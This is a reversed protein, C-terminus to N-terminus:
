RQQIQQRKAYRKKYFYRNLLECLTFIGFVLYAIFGNYLTWQSLSLCCATYAAIGANFLLLLFWCWTLGRMYQRQHEEIDKVFARAFREVLTMEGRLSIAFFGAFCLNMAVPYYRLITESKQWAALLCLGGVMLLQVIQEAQRFGGKLALRALLLFFLVLGLVAPGFQNLGLYIVMPYFVTLIALGGFVLTRLRM